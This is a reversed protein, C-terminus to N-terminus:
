RRVPTTQSGRSSSGPRVCDCAPWTLRPQAPWCSAAAPARATAPIPGGAREIRNGPASFQRPPFSTVRRQYLCPVRLRGFIVGRGLQSLLLLGPKSSRNESERCLFLRAKTRGICGQQTFCGFHLPCGSTHEEFSSARHRGFRLGSPSNVIM